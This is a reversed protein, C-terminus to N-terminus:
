GTRFAVIRWGHRDQVVLVREGAGLINGRRQAEVGRPEFRPKCGTHRFKGPWESHALEFPPLRIGGIKQLRRRAAIHQPALRRALKQVGGMRDVAFEAHDRREVALVERHRLRDDIALVRLHHAGWKEHHAIDVPADEPLRMQRARM